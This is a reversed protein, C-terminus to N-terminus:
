RQLCRGELGPIAQAPFAAVTPGGFVLATGDPGGPPVEGSGPRVGGAGFGWQGEGLLSSTVRCDPTFTLEEIGSVERGGRGPRYTAPTRSSLVTRGAVVYADYEVNQDSLLRGEPVAPTLASAAVPLCALVLALRTM